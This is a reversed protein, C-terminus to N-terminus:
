WFFRLLLKYLQDLPGQSFVVMSSTKSLTSYNPPPPFFRPSIQSTRKYSLEIPDDSQPFWLHSDWFFEGCTFWKLIMMNLKESIQLWQSKTLTFLTENFQQILLVLRGILNWRDHGLSEISVGLFKKDKPFAIGGRFTAPSSRINM